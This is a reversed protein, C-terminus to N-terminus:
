GEAGPIQIHLDRNLGLFVGEAVVDEEAAARFLEIVAPHGKRRAIEPDACKDFAPIIKYTHISEIFGADGFTPDDRQSLHLDAFFRQM